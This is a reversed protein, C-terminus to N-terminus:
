MFYRFRGTKNGTSSDFSWLSMLSVEMAYHNYGISVPFYLYNIILM